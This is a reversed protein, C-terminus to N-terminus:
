QRSFALSRLGVNDDLVLTGELLQGVQLLMRMLRVLWLCVSITDSLSGCWTENLCGAAEIDQPPQRSRHFMIKSGASSPPPTQGTRGVGGGDIVSGVENRGSDGGSDEFYRFVDTRTQTHLLEERCWVSLDAGDIIVCGLIHKAGM